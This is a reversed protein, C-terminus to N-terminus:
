SEQDAADAFRSAVHRLWTSTISNAGPPWYYCGLETLLAQDLAAENQYTDVFQRIGEALERLKAASPKTALYASLVHEPTNGHVRWDQHFYASFVKKLDGHRSTSTM